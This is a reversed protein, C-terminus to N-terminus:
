HRPGHPIHQGVFNSLFHKIDNRVDNVITNWIDGLIGSGAVEDLAAVDLERIQTTPTSLQDTM